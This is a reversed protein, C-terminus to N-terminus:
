RYRKRKYINENISVKIMKDFGAPDVIELKVAEM